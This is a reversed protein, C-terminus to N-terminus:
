RGVLVLHSTYIFYSAHAVFRDSQLITYPESSPGDYETGILEQGIDLTWGMKTKLYLPLAYVNGLRDTDFLHLFFAFSM